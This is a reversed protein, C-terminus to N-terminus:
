RMMVTLNGAGIVVTIALFFLLGVTAVAAFVLLLSNSLWDLCDAIQHDGVPQILAGALKYIYALAIIKLLPLAILFIITLMGAIGVANKLLLSSSAVTDMAGSFMKGVVPIFADAAFRATRLAVGDGVAGAVGRIALLGLFVTSSLGMLTMAIGKLLGALQSVKFHESLNSVIGLVAVFFFLPLVVSKILTAAVSIVMFIAPHLIAASTIGGVAILLTLLVPLLSQMFIVMNDVVERGTNVALTFSGIAMVMLVLYIVARSLQNTTSKEFAASLNHLVASIIALVVLKGLLTFNAVVEKLFYEGLKKLIDAPKWELRGQLLKTVLERFDLHPVAGETENNMQRVFEQLDAMDLASVQEEPSAPAPEGAFVPAPWFVVILLFLLLRLM